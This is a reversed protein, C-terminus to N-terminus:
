MWTQPNETMKAPVQFVHRGCLANLPRRGIWTLPNGEMKAPVQSSRSGYLTARPIKDYLINQM